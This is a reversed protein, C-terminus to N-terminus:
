EGKRKKNKVDEKKLDISIKQVLSKNKEKLESIKISQFFVMIYICFIFLSLIFNSTAEFGLLKSIKHPLDPFISLILLLVSWIIWLISDDINLKHKRIRSIVYIFTFLSAIILVINLNM